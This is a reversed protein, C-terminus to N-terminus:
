DSLTGWIRQLDEQNIGAKKSKQIVNFFDCNEEELLVDGSNSSSNNNDSITGDCNNKNLLEQNM